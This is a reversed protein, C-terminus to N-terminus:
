PIWAWMKLRMWDAMKHFWIWLYNRDEIYIKGVGQMGPRLDAVDTGLSAETRYTIAVEDQQHLVAIRQVVFPIERQPFAALTLTGTQGQRLYVIDQEDINLILRYEDLPAIEFLLQGRELPIGLLRSLDGSIIIGDLPAVLKIRQLQSAILDLQADAQAVQSQSINAASHDLDALANRYQNNYEDRQRLWRQQELRLETDDLEAIVDGTQVLDGARARATAVYGDFPAVIAQQVQGELVADSSVRFAGPVLAIFVGTALAGIALLKLRIAGAGLLLKALLGLKRKMRALSGLALQQQLVFMKGLLDLLPQDIGPNDAAFAKLNRELLLVGIIQDGDRIPISCIHDTDQAQALHWHASNAAVGEPQDKACTVLSGLVRAEEMVEEINQTLTTRPDFAPSNSVGKLRIETDQLLGISVRQCKLKNAIETAVATASAGIEGAHLCAQLVSIDASGSTSESHQPSLALQLWSQGWELLQVIVDQQKPLAMLALSVTGQAEGRINLPYAVLMEARDRTSDTSEQTNFVPSNRSHALKAAMYLDAADVSADPWSADPTANTETEFDSVVVARQVQPLMGCLNTLWAELVSKRNSDM